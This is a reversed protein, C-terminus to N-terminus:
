SRLVQRCTPCAETITGIDRPAAGPVVDVISRFVERAIRAAEGPTEAQIFIEDRAPAGSVSHFELTVRWTKM